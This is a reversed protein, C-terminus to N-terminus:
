MSSRQLYIKHRNTLPCALSVPVPFPVNMQSLVYDNIYMHLIMFYHCFLSLHHHDHYFHSGDETEKGRGNGCATECSFLFLQFLTSKEERRERRSFLITLMFGSNKNGDVGGFWSRLTMKYYFHFDVLFSASHLKGRTHEFFLGM